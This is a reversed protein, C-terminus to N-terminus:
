VANASDMLLPPQVGVAHRAALMTVHAFTEDISHKAAQIRTAMDRAETPVIM